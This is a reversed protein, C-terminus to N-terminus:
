ETQVDETQVVDTEFSLLFTTHTNTKNLLKIDIFSEVNTYDVPRASCQIRNPFVFESEQKEVM